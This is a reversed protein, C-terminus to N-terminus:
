IVVFCLQILLGPLIGLGLLALANLSLFCKASIGMGELLVPKDDNPTEFFMVKIVRLYYFAGVVSFLMAIVASLFHEQMILGQLILFKSYFGVLPPVGALSFMVLLMLFATVPRVKGLGSFDSINEAEFGQNSLLIILGFAALSMLAYTVVYFLSAGYGAKSGILLGLLIFGVHSITSYALMRKINTQVIAILNGVILSIIAMVEILPAWTDYLGPFADVLLRISLGFAALKPTTGLILTVATPSGQYADPMWMHFPVAGLKFAMGAIVFMLGFKLAMSPAVAQESLVRGVQSIEITGTIGYILSIGYLLMGSAIAGMIFYKMAAESAYLQNRSIAVLAYIPLAMLEIGLYLTLFSASSVLIMMGLMSLLSLVYFENQPIKRCVLYRRAYLFIFATLLYIFMKLLSSLKDLYVANSFVKVPLYEHLQYTFYAAGILTLQALSYIGAARKSKPLFLGVLLILMAMFAVLVEPAIIWLEEGLM